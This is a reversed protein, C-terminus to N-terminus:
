ERVASLNQRAVTNAPELVLVKEWQAKAEEIRGSEALIVGYNNLHVTNRPAMETARVIYRAAKELDGLGRFSMALVDFAENLGPQRSQARPEFASWNSGDDSQPRRAALWDELLEVAQAFRGEEYLARGLYTRISRNDPAGTILSEWVPIAAAFKNTNMYVVALNFRYADDDPELEVARRFEVEAKRDDGSRTLLLGYNNHFKPGDAGLEEARRFYVTAEGDDRGSLGIGLAEAYLPNRPDLLHATKWHGLAQETRGLEFLALGYNYHALPNRDGYRVALDFETLARGTKGMEMLLAALELHTESGGYDLRLAAEYNQVAVDYTGLKWYCKGLMAYLQGNKIKKKSLPLLLTVASQYNGAKMLALAKTKQSNIHEADTESGSGGQMGTCGALLLVFLTANLGIRQM